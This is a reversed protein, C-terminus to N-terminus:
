RTPVVEDYNFYGFNLKISTSSGVEVFWVCSRFVLFQGSRVGVLRLKLESFIGVSRLVLRLQVPEKVQYFSRNVKISIPGTRPAEDVGVAM